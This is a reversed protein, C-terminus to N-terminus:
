EEEWKSPGVAEQQGLSSNIAFERMADEIGYSLSFVASEESPVIRDYREPHGAVAWPRFGYVNVGLSDDFESGVPLWGFRRTLWSLRHGVQRVSFESGLAPSYAVMDAATLPGGPALMLVTMVLELLRTNVSSLTNRAM